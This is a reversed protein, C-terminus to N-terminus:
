LHSYATNVLCMQHNHPIWFTFFSNLYRMGGRMHSKHMLTTRQFQKVRGFIWGQRHIKHPANIDAAIQQQKINAGSGETQLYNLEVHCYSGSM